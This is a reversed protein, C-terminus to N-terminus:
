VNSFQKSIKQLASILLADKKKGQSAVRIHYNDLGIKNSCDRVYLHYEELLLQQLETANIGFQVKILLFNSGTPYAFIGKIKKLKSYLYKVDAIVHKRAIHYETNTISLQTLFYEAITNINWVPIQSRIRKLIDANASYCYGLRLGPVGCHKSMSRVIIVNPHHKVHPLLSPIDDDAFDIFSEDVIILRLHQMRNLFHIMDKLPLIQGTPNGPNIILASSIKNDDIWTAYDNLNLQYNNNVPLQYLRANDQNRLKETYESFTPIPIAFDDVFEKQIITILESAGNGIILHEPKVHLVESIYLQSLKPNSSPYSKMLIPLREQLKKTLKKDPYYPNAIFCFDTIKSLMDEGVIEVLSPSHSTEYFLHRNIYIKEKSTM